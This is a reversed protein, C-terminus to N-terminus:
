GMWGFTATTSLVRGTDSEPSVVWILDDGSPDNSSGSCTNTTGALWPVDWNVRVEKDTGEVTYSVWGETGTASNEAGTVVMARVTQRPAVSAVPKKAGNEPNNFNGHDLHVEKFVLTKHHSKNAIILHFQLSDAM